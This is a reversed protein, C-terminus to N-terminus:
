KILIGEAMHSTAIVEVGACEAQGADNQLDM